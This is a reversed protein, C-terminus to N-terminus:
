GIRLETVLKTDIMTKGRETQHSILRNTLDDTKLYDVFLEKTPVQLLRKDHSQEFSVQSLLYNDPIVKLMNSIAELAVEGNKLLSYNVFNRYFLQQGEFIVQSSHDESIASYKILITEPKIVNLFKIRFSDM